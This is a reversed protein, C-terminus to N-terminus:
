TVTINGISSLITWDTNAVTCLLEVTDYQNTSDLRGGVGTTTDSSGFHITEGANQAVRWGGAGKGCVRVVSGLAATDPLTLTVLAANNLIYGNDVAATQSTGTVETWAIGGGTTAVTPNGAVGDGNTVSIGNGAAVSRQVWTDAASRVAIGTSGLGELASLDNALAFTPNGSVGDNNSITIGAAPATLSRQVWTDAASRVAIGTSGLGELASLDDALAFTISGAGGTITIGAAPATLSAVVPTTGTSGIVLNGNSLTLGALAESAAGIMVDDATVSSTAYTDAATRSVVGTGSIAELGGLDDAPTITVTSGAGSTTLGTAGSITLINAAPIANGSDTAFTNPVDSVEAIDWAITLTNGSGSTDMATGGLVNLINSSPTATGSDSVFSTAVASAADIQISGAGNTITIGTGATLTSLTPDSGSSGILLQGDTPQATVTVASTGSGLLIGGDTLSTLGTGGYQPSLATTLTLETGAIVGSGNPTLNIDGNANTSSITNGDIRINDVNLQTIGTVVDADSITIGSDQVGQGGGDGRIIANDTFPGGSVPGGPMIDTTLDFKATIPNFRLQPM